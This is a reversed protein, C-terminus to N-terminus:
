VQNLRKLAAAHSQSEREADDAFTVREHSMSLQSTNLSSAMSSSSTTADVFDSDDDDEDDYM